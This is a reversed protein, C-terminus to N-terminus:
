CYKSHRVNVVMQGTVEGGRGDGQQLEQEVRQKLASCAKNVWLVLGEEHDAPLPESNVVRSHSFRQIAALVRDPTVVEKAYLVMIAEIVAMHASQFSIIFKYKTCM